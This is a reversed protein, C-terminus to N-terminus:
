ISITFTTDALVIGGPVHKPTLKGAYSAGAKFNDFTVYKYSSKPLGACTIKLKGGVIHVYSKPRIYKANEFKEENDWAGLKVPDIEMNDPMELGALHISDTDSYIFRNFNKQATRITKDRAWATIFSAIPIYIGKGTEEGDAKYTVRGDELIPRNNKRIPSTGFKGYLSNLMLKAIKRMGKNGTKTAENKVNIWKDIYDKFLGTFAWFKWGSHYTIDFVDYHDFLLRLDVSTLCMTVPEGGSSTVYETAVFRCYGKLQLTPLHDPKLEFQCTLMQLYLPCDPDEQYKGEFYRGEGYPLPRSYMIYPYLSNVDFVLGPGTEKGKYEPNVYVFGGRYSQRMEADYAPPPFDHSFQLPTVIKKYDYMANSAITSKKLGMDFFLKLAKAAIHVDRLCYDEEENTATYGVPRPKTYDIEGKTTELGFAGPIEEIKLPIIKLSDFITCQYKTTFRIKLNYWQNLNSILATFEGPQLKRESSYKWKQSFLWAVLFEGDFKLNHFYCREPKRWRLFYIFEKIDKGTYYEREDNINEAAWLWVRCDDPDTTTEFDCM